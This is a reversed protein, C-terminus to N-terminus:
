LNPPNSRNRQAMHCTKSCWHHCAGPKKERWAALEEHVSPAATAESSNSLAMWCPRSFLPRWTPCCCVREQVRLAIERPSSGPIPSGRCSTSRWIGRTQQGSFTCPSADEQAPSSGVLIIICSANSNNLGTIKAWPPFSSERQLSTAKGWHQILKSAWPM